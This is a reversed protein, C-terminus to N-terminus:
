RGFQGPRSPLMRRLIRDRKICHHHLAASIHLAILATMSWAFLEHATAFALAEASKSVIPFKPVEFLGFWNLPYASASSRIWGTLPVLIILVYFAWHVAKALHRRWGEVSQPLPPPRHTLRWALRALSLLLVTLGLSKHLGMLSRGFQLEIQESFAGLPINALILAAIIWHLAIAVNDYRDQLLGRM